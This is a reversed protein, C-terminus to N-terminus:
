GQFYRSPFTIQLLGWAKKNTSTNDTVAGAFITSPHERIVCEIDDAIFKHDHGQQCTLVLELFLDFEPSAAMYNIIADNNVNSWGDSILCSTAGIMGKAVNTKVDEHCADLLSTALQRRSPFLGYNPRLTKIAAIL